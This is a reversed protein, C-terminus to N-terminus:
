QRQWKQASFLVVNKQNEKIKDMIRNKGGEDLNLKNWLAIMKKDTGVDCCTIRVRQFKTVVTAALLDKLLPNEYIRYLFYFL